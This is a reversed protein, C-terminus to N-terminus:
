GVLPDVFWLTQQPMRALQTRSSEVHREFQFPMHYCDVALFRLLVEMKLTGLTMDLETATSSQDVMAPLMLRCNPHRRFTGGNRPLPKIYIALLTNVFQLTVLKKQLHQM